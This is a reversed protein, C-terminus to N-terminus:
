LNPMIEMRMKFLEDVTMPKSEGSEEDSDEEDAENSQEKPESSRLVGTELFGPPNQEFFDAGRETFIRRLNDGL